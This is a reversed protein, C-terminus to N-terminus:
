KKIKIKLPLNSIAQFFESDSESNKWHIRKGAPYPKFGVRRYKYM